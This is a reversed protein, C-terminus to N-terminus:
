ASNSSILIKASPRSSKTRMLHFHRNTTDNVLNMTANKKLGSQTARQPTSLLMYIPMVQSGTSSCSFWFIFITFITSHLQTHQNASTGKHQKTQGNNYVQRVHIILTRTTAFQTTRRLSKDTRHVGSLVCVSVLVIDMDMNNHAALRISRRHRLIRAGCSM